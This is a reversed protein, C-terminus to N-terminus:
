TEISVTGLSIAVSCICFYIGVFVNYINYVKGAVATFLYKPQRGRWKMTHTTPLVYVLQFGIYTDPIRPTRLSHFCHQEIEWRFSSILPFSSVMYVSNYQMYWRYVAYVLWISQQSFTKSFYSYKPPLNQLVHKFIRIKQKKAYYLYRLVLMYQTCM